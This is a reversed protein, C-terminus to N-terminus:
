HNWFDQEPDGFDKILTQFDPCFIFVKLPRYSKVMPIMLGAALTRIGQSDKLPTSIGLM